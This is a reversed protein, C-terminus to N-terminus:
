KFFQSAYKRMATTLKKMVPSINDFENELKHLTIAHAFVEMESLNGTQYYQKSHGAGYQGKTLGGITDHLIGIQETKTIDQYNENGLDWLKDDLEFEHGDIIDKFEKYAKKFAPSVKDITIIGENDHMAHAGEHAMIKKQYYQNSTRGPTEGITITKEEPKYYAGKTTSNIIKMDEPWYAAIDDYFKIGRKELQQLQKANNKKIKEVKAPLVPTSVAASPQKAEKGNAKAWSKYDSSSYVADKIAQPVIINSVAIMQHGCNFGGRRRILNNKNTGEMLGNPLGTKKDLAIDGSDFHGKLIEDFESLHIYKKDVCKICFPRSTTLLSGDYAYWELGLDDSIAKNYEASFQNIATTAYTRTYKELAGEGTDNSLIHNRLQDTLAAYSGGERINRLLIAKIGDTVGVELGVSTLGNITAEIATKRIIKLTDKPKFNANFQKFYEHQLDSVDKYANAFTTLEDTYKKDIIIKEISTQIKYIRKLNNLNNLINDGKTDLDKLMTLVSRFLPQQKTAASKSLRDVADEITKIITGISSM